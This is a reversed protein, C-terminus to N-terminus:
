VISDIKIITIQYRTSGTGEVEGIERRSIRMHSKRLFNM